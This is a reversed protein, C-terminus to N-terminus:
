FRSFCDNIDIKLQAPHKKWNDNMADSVSILACLAYSALKEANLYLFVFKDYSTKTAICEDLQNQILTIHPSLHDRLLSFRRPVKEKELEFFGSVRM